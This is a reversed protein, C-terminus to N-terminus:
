SERVGAVLTFVGWRYSSWNLNLKRDGAFGWLYVVVPSGNADLVPVHPFVISREQQKKPHQEGFLLGDEYVPRSLGLKKLVALADAFSYTSQFGHQTM